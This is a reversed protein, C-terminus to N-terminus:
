LEEEVYIRIGRKKLEKFFPLPEIVEEPNKVGREKIKGTAIMQVAISTPTGVTVAQASLNWKRSWETHMDVTIRKREGDKKGEAIVRMIDYDNPPIDKGKFTMNVLERLLDRPVIEIGKVKIPDDRSLGLDTILKYKMYLDRPYSLKYDVYRLGKSKFTEGLTWVEPHEIYYLEQVGVPPPFYMVERDEERVPQILKIKGDEWIEVPHMYEDLICDLSYPVPLPIGLSEYDNFDVWGERLFLREVEDLREIAYRAAVNIMGPCGGLGPIALLGAEKYRDNFEFQKKLIPVESGLDTYHVGAKLAAEMVQPIYYYIIGNVVIDAGKLLEATEEVNRVDVKAHELKKRRTFKRAGEVVAKAKEENIDAVLIDDVFPSVDDDALDYVIAPAVVGAGLVVVRTM